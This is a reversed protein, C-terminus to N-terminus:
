EQREFYAGNFKYNDFSNIVNQKDDTRVIKLIQNKSDFDILKEPINTRDESYYNIYEVGVNDQMDEDSNILNIPILKNDKIILFKVSTYNYLSTLTMFTVPMYVIGNMTEISFIETCIYVEENEGIGTFKEAKIGDKVQYQFITQFDRMTGGMQTDWSYASLKKDPSTVTTALFNLDHFLSSTYQNLVALLDAEFKANAAELKDSWDDVDKHEGWYKISDYEESLRKDILALEAKRSANKSDDPTNVKLQRCSIITVAILLFYLYKQLKM